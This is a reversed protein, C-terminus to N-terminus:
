LTLPKNPTETLMKFMKKSKDKSHFECLGLVKHVWKMYYPSSNM